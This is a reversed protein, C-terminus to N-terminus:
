WVTRRSRNSRQSNLVEQGSPVGLTEEVHITEEKEVGGLEDHMKYQELACKVVGELMEQETLLM